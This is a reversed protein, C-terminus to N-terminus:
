NLDESSLTSERRTKLFLVLYFQSVYKAHLKALELRAEIIEMELEVGKEHQKFVEVTLEKQDELLSRVHDEEEHELKIKGDTDLGFARTIAKNAQAAKLAAQLNTFNLFTQTRERTLRYLEDSVKSNDPGYLDGDDEVLTPNNTNTQSFREARCQAKAKMIDLKLKALREQLEVANSSFNEDNYQMSLEQDM